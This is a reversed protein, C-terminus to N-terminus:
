GAIEQADNSMRTLLDGKREDSFYSLPLILIHKYMANRLDAVVRTRMPIMYYSAIYRFLNKFFIMAVLLCCIYLLALQPGNDKIIASLHYMFTDSIARFNFDFGPKVMVLANPDFLLKLFPIILTVSFLGFVTSLINALINLFAFGKYPIVFKLIKIFGKM